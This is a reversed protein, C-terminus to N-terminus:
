QHLIRDFQRHIHYHDSNVSNSRIWEYRSSKNSFTFYDRRINLEYYIWLKWHERKMIRYNIHSQLGLSKFDLIQFVEGNVALFKTNRFEINSITIELSNARLTFQPASNLKFNRISVHYGLSLGLQNIIPHYTYDNPVFNM